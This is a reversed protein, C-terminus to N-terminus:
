LISKLLLRISVPHNAGSQQTQTLSSEKNRSLPHVKQQTLSPAPQSISTQKPQRRNREDIV